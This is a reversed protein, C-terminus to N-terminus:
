EPQKEADSLLINAAICASMVSLCKENIKQAMASICQERFAETLDTSADSYVHGLLWAVDSCATSEVLLSTM